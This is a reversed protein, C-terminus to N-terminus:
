NNYRVTNGKDGKTLKDKGVYKVPCLPYIYALKVAHLYATFLKTSFIYSQYFTYYCFILLYRAPLQRLLYTFSKVPMTEIPFQFIHATSNCQQLKPPLPDDIQWLCLFPWLHIRRFLIIILHHWIGGLYLTIQRLKTLYLYNSYAASVALCMVYPYPHHVTIM